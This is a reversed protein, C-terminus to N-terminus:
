KTAKIFKISRLITDFSKKDRPNYQIKSLHIDACTGDKFLYTNVNKQQLPLGQFDTIMYEVQAMKGSESRRVAEKKGPGEQARKWYYDRCDKANKMGTQVEIYMYLTLGLKEKTALLKTATGDNKAKHEQLDFGTGDIQLTWDRGPLSLQLPGSAAQVKGPSFSLLAALAVFSLNM